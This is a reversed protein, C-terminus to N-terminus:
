YLTSEANYDDKTSYKHKLSELTNANIGSM